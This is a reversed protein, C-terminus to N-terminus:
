WASRLASRRRGWTGLPLRGGPGRRRDAPGLGVLVQAPQDQRLGIPRLDRRARRPRGPLERERVCVARKPYRFSLGRVEIEGRLPREYGAPQGLGPEPETLAIDALRQLHLRLMRLEIAKDLLRAAKDAFQMKYSIFAFLMGVTMRGDLAALAGFYIM